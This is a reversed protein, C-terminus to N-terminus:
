GEGTKWTPDAVAKSQPSGRERLLISFLVLVAVSLFESQWNQFSQQWFKASSVFALMGQAAHGHRLSEEADARMGGYAHLAFSLAFLLLLASSLSHEYLVLV